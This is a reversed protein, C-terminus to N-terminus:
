PGPDSALRPSQEGGRERERGGREGEKERKVGLLYGKLCGVFVRRFVWCIGRYVDM